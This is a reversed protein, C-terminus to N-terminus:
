PSAQTPVPKPVPKAGGPKPAGPAGPAGPVPEPPPPPRAVDLPLKKPPKIGLQQAYQERTAELLDVDGITQLATMATTLDVLSAAQRGEEAEASTELARAEAEALRENMEDESKPLDTEARDPLRLEQRLFDELPSDPTLTGANVLKLITDALNRTDAKQIDGHKWTPWSEPPYGNLEMLDEVVFRQHTDQVEDLITGLSVMFLSTLDVSLAQTGAKDMGLFIFQTLLVQAIAKAKRQIAADIDLAREGGATMLSVKFGTPKGETNMETPVVLVEHENRRVQSLMKAYNARAAQKAPSAKQDFYELPLEMKPLGVLDREIGIAEIEELRKLFFWSRFANRLLSRGEPNNKAMETRFLVCDEIPLFVRNWSPPARQWMGNIGGDEDFEWGDLSEQARIALKRIGIRGDNYRSRTKPDAGPGARVKYVKEFMSWGFWIHSLCETLFDTFTHSMDSMCETLFQAAEEGRPHDAPTASWPVQRMLANTAHVSAGITSDNDRMERVIRVGLLGKLARHWEEDVVTGYRILGTVGAESRSGKAKFICADITPSHTTPDVAETM